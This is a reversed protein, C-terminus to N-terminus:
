IPTLTETHAQGTLLPEAASRAQEYEPRDAYADAAAADRWRSIVTISGPDERSRCVQAGFCGDIDAARGAQEKLLRVLEEERGDAPRMTVVSVLTAHDAM